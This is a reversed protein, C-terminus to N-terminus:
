AARETTLGLFVEELSSSEGVLEHIPVNAAFAIDGVHDSTTGYALVTEDERASVQIGAQTLADALRSPAPTRIRVSGTTRHTLEELSSEVVLKGHNIILVEDVTQAVEALVHSSILVTREDAAFARLFDRLWRVGGPDLGNAPEDLILLEPDGLLAAALGLRQRMGLSYTKVRRHAAEQLEVLQLVLEVRSRPLDVAEALMRLHDRGSRGPHFDTAELVAGVRRSPEALEAYPQGFLSARGSTPKALGLLMRLTTTKGAGNPGLFGTITGQDLEFSLDDVAVVGGFRKTLSEARVVPTEAVSSGRQAKATRRPSTGHEQM